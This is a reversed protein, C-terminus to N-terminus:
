ELLAPLFSQWKDKSKLKSSQEKLNFKNIYKNSMFNFINSLNKELVRSCASLNFKILLLSLSLSLLIKYM